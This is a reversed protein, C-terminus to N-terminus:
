KSALGGESGGPAERRSGFSGRASVRAEALEPEDNSKTFPPCGRECKGGFDRAAFLTRQWKKNTCTRAAGGAPQRSAGGAQVAPRWFRCARHEAGRVDSSWGSFHGALRRGGGAGRARTGAPAAAKAHASGTADHVANAIAAPVPKHSPEGAGYPRLDPRDPDPDGNVVVVDIREPADRHTLTPHTRWDVSTVKEGDFRVEEYLTRSIGHLLNGQITNELGDPNIVLGCDHACVMRPVRVRGTERDVEVEAIVAVTTRARYAYGIGRGTLLRGSGVRAPSPRADWGYAKAAAEVVAISRARRFIEDDDSARRLLRLRFEVPDTDAAAALEDVFSEAAFTIQPGNPDRLNGTRLPTEFVLPLRVARTEERRNPVHYMADPGGAGGPAPREPRLGMLQAILVTRAQNYGVHAYNAIRGQYDLAVLNGDADLGGRLDIAFAPGKTDWATEEHRM